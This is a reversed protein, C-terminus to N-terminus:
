AEKSVVYEYVERLGDIGGEVHRALDVASEVERAYTRVLAIDDRGDKKIWESYPVFAGETDEVLSSIIKESTISSQWDISLAHFCTCFRDGDLSVDAGIEYEGNILSIVVKTITAKEVLKKFNEEAQKKM